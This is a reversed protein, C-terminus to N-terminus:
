VETLDELRVPGDQSTFSFSQSGSQQQAFGTIRHNGTDYVRLRGDRMVALRRQDPFCAYRMDNQAGTASPTGLGDPWWHSAQGPQQEAAAPVPGPAAALDRCLADVRAKLSNNFMDGIMLMGGAAWQGMGGLEPHDFQAMRGGGRRLAEAVARAADPSFGHRRAIDAINDAM